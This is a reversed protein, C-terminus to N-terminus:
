ANEPAINHNHCFVNNPDYKGKINALKQYNAGYTNKIITEDPNIGNLYSTKQHAYPLLQEYVSALWQECTEPDDKSVEADILLMYGADRVAFATEEAPVRNIKGHLPWLQAMVMPLNANEIANKLVSLMENTMEKFFLSTGGVPVGNPVMPDLKTQLENYAVKGTHDMIPNALHQLPQIVAEEVTDNVEDAYMGSLMIVRKHHLEAPLFPAPPLQVIALNVTIEDPATKMYEQLNFIVTDLDNYDYMVDLAMVEPGVPHLQFEFSTVVGFNGGGGKIAWFLDPHNNENVDILHGDATVMRAGVINDSTLGHKGRLYGFGGGLALGAIGTESVTGTPTALGFQQTKADVDGLKAGGEVIAVQRKEDVKVHNMSSLDIMVGDDCVATGAFHHGGGRIAIDLEHKKAYNVAAVVDEENRCVFIAAPYRNIGTNWVKRKEEYTPHDPFIIVEDKAKIHESM